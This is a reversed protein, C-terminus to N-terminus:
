EGSQRGAGNLQLAGLQKEVTDQDDEGFRELYEDLEGYHKTVLHETYATPKGPISQMCVFCTISDSQALLDGWKKLTPHRYRRTGCLNYSRASSNPYVYKDMTDFVTKM